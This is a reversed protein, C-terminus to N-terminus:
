TLVCHKTSSSYISYKTTTSLILEQVCWRSYLIELCIVVNWFVCVRDIMDCQTSTPKTSMVIGYVILTPMCVRHFLHRLLPSPWDVTYLGQVPIMYSFCFDCVEGLMHYQWSVWESEAWTSYNSSHYGIFSFDFAPSTASHSYTFSEICLCKDKDGEALREGGAAESYQM